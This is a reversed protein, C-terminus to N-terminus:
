PHKGEAPTGAPLAQVQSEADILFGGSAAVAEGGALGSVVEYYGDGKRGVTINRPAFSGPASEVWVMSREGSFIVAGEPVALEKLKRGKLKVKVFMEPKLLGLRNDLDIRVKLTRTEPNIAPEVFAVQGPFVKGPFAETTVLSPAGVAIRGSDTEYLEAVVWVGALSGVAFLPTGENVYQGATVLRETIVGAAPANITVVRKPQRSRELEALQPESVGWGLLRSRAADRLGAMMARSEPLASETARETGELALLYEKQASVLDPAYIDLLPQGASIRAGTFNAHLREVRGPIRASVRTLRREDWTVKGAAITETSFERVAVKVVAVNAMVRQQPTLTVGGPVHVSCEVAKSPAGQAQAVLTMGCISCAGPHDGAVFPHMPCLYKVAHATESKKGVGTSGPGVPRLAPVLLYLATATIILLGLVALATSVRLGKRKEKDAVYNGPDM